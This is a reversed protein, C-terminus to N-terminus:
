RGMAQLAFPTELAASLMTIEAHFVFLCVTMTLSGAIMLGTNNGFPLLIRLPSM